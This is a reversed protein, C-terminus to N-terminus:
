GAAHQSKLVAGDPVAGDPVVGDDVCRWLAILLKRALGVIAMPRMRKGQGEVKHRFWQGAGLGAPQAAM